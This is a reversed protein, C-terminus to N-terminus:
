QRGFLLLGITDNTYKLEPRFGAQNLKNGILQRKKEDPKVTRLAEFITTYVYSQESLDLLSIHRVALSAITYSKNKRSLNSMNAVQQVLFM